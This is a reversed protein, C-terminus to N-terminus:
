EAYNKQSEDMNQTDLTWQNKQKNNQQKAKTLCYEVAHAYWM